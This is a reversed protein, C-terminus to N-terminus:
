VGQGTAGQTGADGGKAANAEATSTAEREEELKAAAEKAESKAQDTPMDVKVEEAHGALVCTETQDTVPYHQGAAYKVEGRDYYNVLFKIRTVQKAM